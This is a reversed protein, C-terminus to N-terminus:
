SQEENEWIQYFEVQAQYNLILPESEPTLSSKPYGSYFKEIMVQNKEISFIIRWGGCGMRYKNNPQKKIRRTRHPSPDISLLETARDIFNIGQSTFWKLQETALESYHIEFKPSNALTAEVQAIWGSNATPFSDVKPLYPKLDLIPTGDVLDHSGIYIKNREIKLLQVATLGIPNPRHPSRTAFVGRRKEPGRPPLVKARWNQNRHFWWVLWIHSFSELDSLALEMRSDDILEIVSVEKESGSPQHPADFKAQMTTKIHGIPKLVLNPSPNLNTPNPDFIKPM